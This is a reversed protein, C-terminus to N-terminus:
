SLSFYVAAAIILIHLIFEAPLGLMFKKHKTKHRIKKMTLYMPGAAGLLGVTMLTAEPIRRKGSGAIRKDYVTLIIGVLSIVAFWCVTAPIVYKKM